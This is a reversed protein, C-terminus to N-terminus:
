FPYGIAFHLSLGDSFKPINYYGSKGTDYPEHLGVGLDLRLVLFELDYRIGAGTGLALEKPFRSLSFNGGPRNADNRLLWVNGADLFFAGFLNGFLPFRLEANMEFKLDGTQDMYSYRTQATHFSGPGVSRVTFSRVSNAGGVYFQERYPAITSNGYSYIVGGMVRTALHLSNTLRFTKHLEATFKLFQAFPNGFLKKNQESFKKGSMAYICSTLNGAETVSAQFWIPHRKDKPSSYTYTYKLSPVFQDRMSIYLAPNAAMISDFEATHSLMQDYDLNFLELEHKSRENKHWKYLVNVGMQVLNFFKARNMWDADLSFTTTSPYRFTRRNIFPFVFRPFDFSLSTGLEYSNLLSSNGEGTRRTQWEYSGFVRFTVKEGGRFANRRSLGFAVGPGLQDNSKSTVNMEFDGDYRKDMVATIYTDLTDCTLSTDRPMYNIDLQGFVALNNLKELTQQQDTLRYIDGKKHLINQRWLFVKLPNKKGAYDFTFTRGKYRGTLPEGMKNRVTIYTHGMYWRQRVKEPRSSLPMVQMQVYLPRAITDARFVTYSSNYFYYGNNRFIKEIRARENVLNYARFPEGKKLLCYKSSARLLSDAIPPFGLYAISDLRFIERTTVSYAIKAKRPNKSPIIEYNVSGRFYGYNHLTNTAVKARVDPSVSSILVPTSAFTNFFWKGLVTKNDVFANYFWLGFQLPSRLSSSGLLSNNPAYALVADMETKTPYFAEEDAQQMEKLKAKIEKEDISDNEGLLKKLADTNRGSVIKEVDKVAEGITTIVGVSDKKKKKKVHDTYTIEKIGTYLVEGEPLNRTTSCSTILWTVLLYCVSWKCHRM